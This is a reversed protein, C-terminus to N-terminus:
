QAPATGEVRLNNEVSRVGDVQLAAREARQKAEQNPVTGSLRVVGNETDVNIGTMARLGEDAALQANVRGTITMDDLAQGTQGAAGEGTREAEGRREPSCGLAVVLALM